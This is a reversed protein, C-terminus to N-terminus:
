AADGPWEEPAMTEPVRRALFLGVVDFDAFRETLVRAAARFHAGTTLLDDVVAVVGADPAAVAEDIHYLDAIQGPRLRVPRRHSPETSRTQVILERVDLPQGPRVAQLMRLLRDDYAADGRAKSPPVPVFVVRDLISPHMARRLVGAAATIAEEKYRWDSREVRSLSKKFHLILRNTVSYAFGKRATYEGIYHCVDSPWLYRHDARTLEDIQTLRQPFGREFTM